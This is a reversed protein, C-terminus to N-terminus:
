MAIPCDMRAARRLRSLHTLWLAPGIPIAPMLTVGFRTVTSYFRLDPDEAADDFVTGILM